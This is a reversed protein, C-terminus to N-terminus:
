SHTNDFCNAGPQPWRSSTVRPRHCEECFIIPDLDDEYLVQEAEYLEYDFM